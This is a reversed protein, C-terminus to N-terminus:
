FRDNIKKRYDIFDKFIAEVIKTIDPEEAFIYYTNFNEKM